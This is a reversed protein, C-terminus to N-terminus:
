SCDTVWREPGSLIRRIAWRRVQVRTRRRRRCRRGTEPSPQSARRQDRCRSIPANPAPYGRTVSSRRAPKACSIARHPPQTQLSVHCSWRVSGAPRHVRALPRLRREFRRRCLPRIRRSL